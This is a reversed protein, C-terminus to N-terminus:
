QKLKKNKRREFFVKMINLADEQSYVDLIDCNYKINKRGEKNMTSLIAKTINEATEYGEDSTYVTSVTLKGVKTRNVKRDEYNSIDNLFEFM